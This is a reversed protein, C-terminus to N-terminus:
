KSTASTAPVIVVFVGRRNKAWAEPNHGPDAPRDEGYSITDILNPDVGARVLAERVALARREGLSRNYEETGREDCHGEIRLAKGALGKMGSAVEEIKSVESSKITAKDFEFYVTKGKFIQNEDSDPVMSSLAGSLPMSKNPDVLPTVPVPKGGDDPPKVGTATLDPPPTIPPVPTPTTHDGILGSPPPTTVETIGHGPLPTTKELGKKCGVVSLSLVIAVASLKTVTKFKMKKSISSLRNM